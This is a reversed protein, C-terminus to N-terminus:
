SLMGMASSLAWCHELHSLLTLWQRLEKDCLSICLMFYSCNSDGNQLVLSAPLCWSSGALDPHSTVRDSSMSDACLPNFRDSGGALFINSLISCVLKQIVDAQSALCGQSIGAQCPHCLLVDLACATVCGKKGNMQFATEVTDHHPPVLWEENKIPM